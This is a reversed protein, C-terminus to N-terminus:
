PAWNQRVVGTNTMLIMHKLHMNLTFHFIWIRCVRDLLLNHWWYLMDMWNSIWEINLIKHKIQICVYLICNSSNGHSRSSKVYSFYFCGIWINLSSLDLKSVKQDSTKNLLNLYIGIRFATQFWWSENGLLTLYTIVWRM